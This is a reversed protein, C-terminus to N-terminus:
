AAAAVEKERPLGVIRVSGGDLQVALEVPTGAVLVDRVADASKGFAMVTRSQSKQGFEVTAGQLLLYDAGKANQKTEISAPTVTANFIPRFGRANNETNSMNKFERSGIKM